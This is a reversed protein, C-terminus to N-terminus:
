GPVSKQNGRARREGQQGGRCLGTVRLGHGAILQAAEDVGCEVLKDRWPGISSIGHRACGEIAQRLSWQACVTATNLSLFTSDTSLDRLGDAM